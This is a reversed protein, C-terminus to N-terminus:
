EQTIRIHKQFIVHLVPAVAPAGVYRGPISGSGFDFTRPRRYSETPLSPTNRAGQIVPEPIVDDVPHGVSGVGQAMTVPCLGEHVECEGCRGGFCVLRGDASLACTHVTGAAIATFPGFGNPVKCQGANGAGFCILQGDNQLACTHWGGAAVATIPGLAPRACFGPGGLPDFEDIHGDPVDCQGRRNRGFCVLKGDALM